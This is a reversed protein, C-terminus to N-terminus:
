RWDGGVEVYRIVVISNVMGNFFALYVFLLHSQKACYAVLWALNSTARWRLWDYQTVWKFTSLSNKVFLLDDKPRMKLFFSEFIPFISITVKELLSKQWKQGCQIVIKLM